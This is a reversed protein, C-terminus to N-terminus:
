TVNNKRNNENTIVAELVSGNSRLVGTVQVTMNRSYVSEGASGGGYSSSAVSASGYGGKGGGISGAISSLAAGVAVLAAGAAIATGASAESMQEISKIFATEALGFAMLASGFKKAFGGMTKLFGSVLSEFGGGNFLDAFTDGITEALEVFASITTDQFSALTNKWESTDLEPKVRMIISSSDQARNNINKLDKSVSLDINALGHEAVMEYVRQDSMMSLKAMEAGQRKSSEEMKQRLAAEAAVSSTIGKQIRQISKLADEMAKAADYAQIQAQNAIDIQDQTSNTMGAISSMLDAKTQLLFVEDAYREKTLEEARAAAQTRTAISETADSAIRKAEAIDREIKHWEVSMDSMKDNINDITGAFQAAQKGLSIAGKMDLLADGFSAIGHGALLNAFTGKVTNAIISWNNGVTTMWEAMMRGTETHVDFMAQRITDRFADAQVQLNDGIALSKFNNAEAILQKFAVVAGAVGLGAIGATLTKAGASLSAFAQSGTAGMSSLKQTAGSLASMMRQIGSVNVGIANGIDSVVDQSVKDFDRLGQKAKAMGAQFQSVDAGVNVKLNPNKAM